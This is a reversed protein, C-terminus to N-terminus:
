RLSQSRRGRSHQCAVTEARVKVVADDRPPDAGVSTGHLPKNEIAASVSDGRRWPAVAVVNGSGGGLVKLDRAYTSVLENFTMVSVM